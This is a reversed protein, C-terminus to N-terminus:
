TFFGVSENEKMGEGVESRMMVEVLLGRKMETTAGASQTM